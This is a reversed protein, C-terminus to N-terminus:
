FQFYIFNTSSARFVIMLYIIIYVFVFKVIAPLEIIKTTSKERFIFYDVILLPWSYLLTKSMLQLVIPNLSFNTFLQVLWIRIQSLSETQFFILGFAALNFTLLTSSIRIILAIFPPKKRRFVRTHRYIIAYGALLLGNYLGWLVFNWAAGHWLGMIVFTIIVVLLPHLYKGRIKLTALPYYIYDRIWTTLSIHWRNWVDQINSAFFPAKFNLMINFGMMRATGRAIDSYASFDGYLQILFAIAVGMVLGGGGPEVGSSVMKYYAPLFTAINDVIFKKKFYGWSILFFGEYLTGRSMYRPNQIQPILRSAREIPGAVLQPFFSVYLAYDLFSKVPKIDRRFVDITYSLTQFTYFSIGVPLIIKLTPKDLNIHLLSFISYLNDLFFNFYKFFGLISLNVFLSIILYLKRSESKESKGMALGCFYDTTTSILILALFRWDWFGYFIYSAVLLFRNQKKYDLSLYVIYVISFFVAFEFSNFSM